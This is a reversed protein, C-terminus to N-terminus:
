QCKCKCKKMCKEHDKYMLADTMIYRPVFNKKPCLLIQVYPRISLAKECKLLISYSFKMKWFNLTAMTYLGCLSQARNLMCIDSCCQMINSKECIYLKLDYCEWGVTWKSQGIPYGRVRYCCGRVRLALSISNRNMFWRYMGLNM